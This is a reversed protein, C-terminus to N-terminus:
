LTSPTVQGEAGPGVHVRVDFIEDRDDNAFTFAYNQKFKTMAADESPAEILLCNRQKSNKYHVEFIM